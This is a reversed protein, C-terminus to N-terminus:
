GKNETEKRFRYGAYFGLAYGAAFVALVVLEMTGNM